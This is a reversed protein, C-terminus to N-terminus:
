GEPETWETEDIEVACASFLVTTTGNEMTRVSGAGEAHHTLV